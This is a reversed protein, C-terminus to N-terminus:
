DGEQAWFSCDNSCILLGIAYLPGALMHLKADHSPRFRSKMSAMTIEQKEEKKLVLYEVAESLLVTIHEHNFNPQAQNM